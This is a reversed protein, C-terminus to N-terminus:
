PFLQAEDLTPWNEDKKSLLPSKIPWRVGILPDNWRVGKENSKSYDNDVLYVVETDNELALFGHAFGKPVYLMLRNEESLEEEVWKAFTPSRKRLDVAVDLIRGRVVRVLKGQAFPETQYHLGRLVWKKSKSHNEQVPEFKIGVGRFDPRKFAEMFFGRDDGLVTPEILVVDRIELNTFKFPM